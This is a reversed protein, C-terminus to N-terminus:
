NSLNMKIARDFFKAGVCTLLSNTLSIRGGFIAATVTLGFTNFVTQGVDDATEVDMNYFYGSLYRRGYMQYLATSSVYAAIVKPELLFAGSRVSDQIVVSVGNTALSNIDINDYSLNFPNNNLQTKAQETNVPASAM